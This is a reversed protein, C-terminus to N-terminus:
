YPAYIGTYPYTASPKGTLTTTGVVAQITYGTLSVTMTLPVGGSGATSWGPTLVVNSTALGPSVPQTGGAPNGYVVVNQVAQMFANSPTASNSDYTRLSAYEAGSNVANKLLNYQYFTYGFQFTGIFLSVLVGSGIAFELMINGRQNPRRRKSRPQLKM